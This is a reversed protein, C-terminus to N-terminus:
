NQRVCSRLVPRHALTAAPAGKGQGVSPQVNGLCHRPVPASARHRSAHMPGALSHGAVRLHTSTKQSGHVRAAHARSHHSRERPVSRRGRLSRQPEGTARADVQRPHVSGDVPLLRRRLSCTEHRENSSRELSAREPNKGRLVTISRRPVTQERVQVVRRVLQSSRPPDDAGRARHVARLDSPHSAGNV